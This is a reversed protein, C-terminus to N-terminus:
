FQLIYCKFVDLFTSVKEQPGFSIDWTVLSFSGQFQENARWSDISYKILLIIIYVPVM